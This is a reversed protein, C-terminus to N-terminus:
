GAGAPMQASLIGAGRVRNVTSEYRDIWVTSGHYEQMKSRRLGDASPSTSAVVIYAMEYLTITELVDVNAM